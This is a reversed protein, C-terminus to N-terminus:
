KIREDGKELKSFSRQCSWSWSMIKNEFYWIALLRFFFLFCTEFFTSHHPNNRFTYKTLLLRCFYILEMTCVDVVPWSLSFLVCITRLFPLFRFVHVFFTCFLCDHQQALYLWCLRFVFLVFLSFRMYLLCLLCVSYYWFILRTCMCLSSCISTAMKITWPLKLM